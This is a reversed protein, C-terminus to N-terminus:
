QAVRDVRWAVMGTAGPLAAADIRLKDAPDTLRQRFPAGDCDVTRRVPTKSAISLTIKGSGTCVVALEYATGPPLDPVSHFGDGVRELGAEVFGPDDSIDVM